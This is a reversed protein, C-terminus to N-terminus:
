QGGREGQGAIRPETSNIEVPANKYRLLKNLEAVLKFRNEKELIQIYRPRNKEKDGGAGHAKFRAPEDDHDRSYSWLYFMWQNKKEREYRIYTHRFNM